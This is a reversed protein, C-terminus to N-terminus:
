VCMHLVFVSRCGLLLSIEQGVLQLPLLSVPCYESLHTLHWLECVLFPPGKCSPPAATKDSALCGLM